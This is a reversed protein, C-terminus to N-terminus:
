RKAKVRERYVILLGGAAILFAGPFLADWPSEDFFVWGLVFAMPIGFYSFPALDSQEAMRCSTVLFLVATGGFAGMAIIWGM